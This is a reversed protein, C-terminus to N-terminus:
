GGVIRRGVVLFTKHEMIKALTARLLGLSEVRFFFKLYVFYSFHIFASVARISELVLVLHLSMLIREMESRMRPRTGRKPINRGGKMLRVSVWGDEINAPVAALFIRIWRVPIDPCLMQALLMFKALTVLDLLKESCIMETLVQLVTM